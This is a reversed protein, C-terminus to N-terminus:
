PWHSCKSTAEGQALRIVLKTFHELLYMSAPALLPVLDHNDLRLTGAERYTHGM